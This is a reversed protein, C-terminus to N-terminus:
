TFRPLDLYIMFPGHETAIDFEPYVDFFWQKIWATRGPSTCNSSDSEARWPVHWNVQCRDTQHQRHWGKDPASAHGGALDWPPCVHWQGIHGPWIHSVRPGSGLHPCCSMSPKVMVKQSTVAQWKSQCGFSNFQHMSTVLTLLQKSLDGSPIKLWTWWERRRVDPQHRGILDTERILFVYFFVIKSRQVTFTGFM